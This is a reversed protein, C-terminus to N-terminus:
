STSCAAEEPLTSLVPLNALVAHIRSEGSADGCVIRLLDVRIAYHLAEDLAWADVRDPLRWTWVEGRLGPAVRERTCGVSVAGDRLDLFLYAGVTGPLARPTEGERPAPQASVHCLADAREPRAPLTLETM